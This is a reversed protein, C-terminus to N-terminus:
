YATTVTDKHVYDKTCVTAYETQSTPVKTADSTTCTTKGWWPETEQYWQPTKVPVYVIDKSDKKGDEYGSEYADEILKEIEEKSFTKNKDVIIIIPKLM